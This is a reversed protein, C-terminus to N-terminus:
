LTLDLLIHILCLLEPILRKRMLLQQQLTMQSSFGEVLGLAFLMWSSQWGEAEWVVAWDWLVRGERGERKM